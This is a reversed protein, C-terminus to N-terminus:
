NRDSPPIHSHQHENTRERAFMVHRKYYLTDVVSTVDLLRTTTTTTPVTCGFHSAAKLHVSYKFLQQYVICLNDRWEWLSEVCDNRDIVEYNKKRETTNSVFLISADIERECSPSKCKSTHEAAWQCRLSPSLGWGADCVCIYLLFCWVNIKSVFQIPIQDVAIPTPSRHLSRLSKILSAIQETDNRIDYTRPQRTYRIEAIISNDCRYERVICFWFPACM